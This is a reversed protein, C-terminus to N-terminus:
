QLVIPGLLSVPGDYCRASWSCPFVFLSFRGTPDKGGLLGGFPGAGGWRETQAGPANDKEPLASRRRLCSVHAMGRVQDALLLGAISRWVSALFNGDSM